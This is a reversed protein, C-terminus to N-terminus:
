APVTQSEQEDRPANSSEPFFFRDSDTPVRFSEDTPENGVLVSFGSKTFFVFGRVAIAFHLHYVKM